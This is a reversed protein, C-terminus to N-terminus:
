YAPEMRPSDPVANKVAPITLLSLFALGAKASGSVRKLFGGLGGQKAGAAIQLNARELRNLSPIWRPHDIDLTM